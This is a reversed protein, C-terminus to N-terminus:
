TDANSFFSSRTKVFIFFFMGSRSILLAYECPSVLRNLRGNKGPTAVLAIAPTVTLVRALDEALAGALVRAPTVALTAVPKAAPTVTLVGALAGALTCTVPWGFTGVELPVVLWMVPQMALLLM